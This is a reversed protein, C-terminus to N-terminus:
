DMEEATTYSHVSIGGGMTQWKEDDANVAGWAGMGSDDDRGDGDGDGPIDAEDGGVLFAVVLLYTVLFLSFDRVVALAMRRWAVGSGVVFRAVSPPLSSLVASDGIDKMITMNKEDTYARKRTYPLLVFFATALTALEVTFFIVLPSFVIASSVLEADTNQLHYNLGALLSGFAIAIAPRARRSREIAIAFCLPWIRMDEPSSGRPVRLNPLFKKELQTARVSDDVSDVDTSEEASSDAPPAKARTAVM